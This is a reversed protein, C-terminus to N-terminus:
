APRLYPPKLQSAVIPLLVVLYLQNEYNVARIERQLRVHVRWQQFGDFPRQLSAAVCASRGGLPLNSIRITYKKFHVSLDFIESKRIISSQKKAERNTSAAAIL